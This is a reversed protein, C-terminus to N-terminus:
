EELLTIGQEDCWKAIVQEMIALADDLSPYLHDSSWILETYQIVRLFSQDYSNYSYGIEIQGEKKTWASINPYKQNFSPM